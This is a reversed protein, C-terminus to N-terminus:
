CVSLFLHTLPWVQIASVGLSGKDPGPRNEGGEEYGAGGKADDASVEPVAENVQAENRTSIKVHKSLAAADREQKEKEKRAYYAARTERPLHEVIDDIDGNVCQDCSCWDDHEASITCLKKTREQCAVIKLLTKKGSCDDEIRQADKDVSDEQMLTVLFM